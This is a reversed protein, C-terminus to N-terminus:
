ETLVTVASQGHFIYVSIHEPPDTHKRANRMESAFHTVAIRVGVTYKGEPVM